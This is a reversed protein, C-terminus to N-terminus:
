HHQPKSIQVLASNDESNLVTVIFFGASFESAVIDKIRFCSLTPAFFGVCVKDGFFRYAAVQLWSGRACKGPSASILRLARSTGQESSLFLFSAPCRASTLFTTLLWSGTYPFSFIPSLPM